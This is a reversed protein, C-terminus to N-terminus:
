KTMKDWRWLGYITLFKRSFVLLHEQFNNKSGTLLDNEGTQFATNEKNTESDRRLCSTSRKERKRLPSVLRSIWWGSLRPPSARDDDRGRKNRDPNPSDVAGPADNEKTQDLVQSNHCWIDRVSEKLAASAGCGPTDLKQVTYTGWLRSDGRPRAM